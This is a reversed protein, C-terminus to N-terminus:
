VHSMRSLHSIWSRVTDARRPLTSQSVSVRHRRMWEVISPKQLECGRVHAEAAERFVPLSIIRRTIDTIRETYGMVAFAKGARTLQFQRPNRELYGLFAAANRYYDAQRPEFGYREAVAETDTIGASIADVVDIVKALDNSQPFPIDTPLPRARTHALIEELTPITTRSGLVYDGRRTLRLSHYDSLDDFGYRWISFVRNSYTLFVPVVPKTIGKEKWMRYPYYLQRIHFNDRTGLKAELLYLSEGEFGADVEIQVGDVQLAHIRTTGGFQFGFRPSRLRGRITLYLREESLFSALLSSVFALDIAQSESAPPERWPLSELFHLAPAPHTQVIGCSELNHYGDGLILRYEGNSVPLITTAHLIAPREARSDFKTMLRPERGSIQKIQDATLHVEGCSDLLNAFDLGDFLQQWARATPTDSV